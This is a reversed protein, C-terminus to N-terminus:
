ARSPGITVNNGIELHGAIGVQGGMTVHHGVRVSGAIGVQSVLLAGPGIHTGHGITVLDGLKSGKGIITSGLAARAISCNAGIEVDDEIVATGAQPIKHHVGQSTAYGYGDNGIVSCAHITVNNGIVTDDYIVVNPYFVCGDGVKVRPGIFVGPYIVCGKGITATPDVYSGPHAGQFPHARWGHLIVVAKCFALYPDATKLLTLRDSTVGPAVIVATAQTTELLKQYKRNSLFSIQGAQAEELTAVSSVEAEADGAVQAEIQRALEILKM